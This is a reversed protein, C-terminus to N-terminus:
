DDWSSYFIGLSSLTCVLSHLCGLPLCLSPHLSASSRSCEPIEQIWSYGFSFGKSKCTIHAWLKKSINLQNKDTVAAPTTFDEKTKERFCKPSNLSQVCLM